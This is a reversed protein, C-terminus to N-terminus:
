NVAVPVNVSPAVCFRVFVAIHFEAVGPTAVILVVPNAVATPVPVELMVALELPTVEFVNVNVTVAAVNFDIAIVAGLEDIAM